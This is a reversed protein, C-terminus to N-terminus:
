STAAGGNTDLMKNTSDALLGCYGGPTSILLANPYSAAKGIDNASKRDKSSPGSTQLHNHWTGVCCMESYSQRHKERLLEQLGQVGLEFYTASRKSDPPADIVDVVYIAGLSENFRGWLVGGTETHPHRAIEIEIKQHAAESLHLRWMDTGNTELDVRHFAPVKIRRAEYRLGDSSRKALLIAGSDPLGQSYFRGLEESVHAAHVSITADSVQMTESGCGTGTRILELRAKGSLTLKAVEADDIFSALKITDVEDLNPNREPGEVCFAAVRGSAYLAADAVRTHPNDWSTLLHRVPTSATTNLILWKSAARLEEESAKTLMSEQITNAKGTTSASLLELAKAMSYAKFEPFLPADNKTSPPLLAHRAYNHPLLAEGDLVLAPALGCRAMHLGIKSGLSGGGLLVWPQAVTEAPLQNFTRLVRTNLEDIVAAIRVSGVGKGPIMEVVYGFTEIASTTGAVVRPREVHILLSIPIPWWVTQTKFKPALREIGEIVSQVANECHWRRASRLLSAVDKVDDPMYESCVFSSGDPLPKSRIIASVSRGAYMPSFSRQAYKSWTQATLDGDDSLATIRYVGTVNKSRFSSYATSRYAIDQKKKPLRQLSLTDGIILDDITDRRAPEWTDPDDNLSDSAAGQLWNSLQVLLGPVGATRFLNEISGQVLCPRPSGDGKIPLLHAVNKPFDARLEFQPVRDPYGIPFSVTVPEVALIGTPTQGELTWLSSMEVRLGFTARWEGSEM